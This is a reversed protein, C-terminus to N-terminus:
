PHNVEIAIAGWPPTTTSPTATASTTASSTFSSELSIKQDGGDGTTNIDHLETFGTPPTWSAAAANTGGGGNVAILVEGDGGTVSSLTGTPSGSTGSANNSQNIPNTTLDGSLQVVSIAISRAKTSTPTVIVTGNVTGTGSAKFALLEHHDNNATSYANTAGIQAPSSIATGAVTAGDTNDGLALAVLVLVTKGSTTTISSVTYTSQNDTTSTVSGLSTVSLSAPPAVSTPTAFSTVKQSSLTLSTAFAILSGLAALAGLVFLTSGLASRFPWRLARM